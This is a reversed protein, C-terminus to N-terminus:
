YILSAHRLLPSSPSFFPLLLPPIRSQLPKIVAYSCHPTISYIYALNGGSHWLEAVVDSITSINGTHQLTKCAKSRKKPKPKM